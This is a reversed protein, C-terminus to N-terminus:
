RQIILKQTLRTDGSELKVFYIGAPVQKGNV